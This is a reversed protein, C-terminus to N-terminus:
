PRPAASLGDIHETVESPLQERDIVVRDGHASLIMEVIELSTEFDDQPPVSRLEGTDADMLGIDFAKADKLSVDGEREPDHHDMYSVYLALKADDSIPALLAEMQSEDMKYKDAM